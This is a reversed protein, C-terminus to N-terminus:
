ATQEILDLLKRAEIKVDHDRAVREAGARGMRELETIPADLMEGMATALEAVDGAPVLWGNEGPAVLEPIGAIYTSIVPRGLALSEMIVVPLGEAFSPLVLGRSDLLQRKVESGTLWGALKVYKCLDLERIREEIPERLPGGGILVVEFARGQARLRAAAEVLTLQGKQESLRGINILRPAEPPQSPPSELFNGDLGCHVVHVKDWDSFEAWRWLQSRGYSCICVVFAAHRVKARLGLAVPRDFEEPGHVTFSYPPGGLLRCLLAVAASNSGFHVHLHAISDRSTWRRLLCAEALYIVHILVGRDSNRGLRRAMAWAQAFQRPRSLATAVLAWLLQLMGADLIRRTKAAELRDDPDVLPTGWGRVAYREICAGMAEMAAIERRIFTQSAMPYQNIFYGIRKLAIAVRHIWDTQSVPCELSRRGINRPDM